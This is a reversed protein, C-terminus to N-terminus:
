KKLKLEKLREIKEKIETMKLERSVAMKHFKELDKVQAEVIKKKEELERTKEEIEKAVKEKGGQLERTRKGVEIELLRKALILEKGKKRLERIKKDLFQYFTDSFYGLFSMIALAIITSTLVFSFNQPNKEEPLFVDVYPFIRFYTGFACLILLLVTWGVLFTAQFKPFLWFLNMVYLLYIAPIIWAIGGLFHLILTLLFLDFFLYGFYYNVATQPKKTKVRNILLDIPISSLLLLSILFFLIDPLSIKLAVRLILMLFLFSSAIPFRQNIDIKIRPLFESAEIAINKKM